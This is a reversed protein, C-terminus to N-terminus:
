RWLDPDIGRQSELAREFAAAERKSWRGVLADLDDYVHPLDPGEVTGLREELLGIVAKNVSVGRERARHRLARAVAPPVNRLTVAM